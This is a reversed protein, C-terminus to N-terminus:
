INSFSVRTGLCKRRTKINKIVNSLTTLDSRKFLETLFVYIVNIAFYNSWFILSQKGDKGTLDSINGSIFFCPQFQQKLRFAEALASFEPFNHLHQFIQFSRVARVHRGANVHRYLTFTLKRSLISGCVGVGHECETIHSTRQLPWNLAIYVAM